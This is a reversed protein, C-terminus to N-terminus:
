EGGCTDRYRKCNGMGQMGLESKYMCSARLILCVNDSSGSQPPQCQERYARCNGHGREGLEDKMECARRLEGCSQAHAEAPALVGLLVGLIVSVSAVQVFWWERKSM